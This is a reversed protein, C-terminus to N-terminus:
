KLTAGDPNLLRFTLILSVNNQFDLSTTAGDKTLGNAYFDRATVITGKTQENKSTATIDRVSLSIDYKIQDKELSSTGEFTIGLPINKGNSLSFDRTVSSKATIGPKLEVKVPSILSKDSEKLSATV